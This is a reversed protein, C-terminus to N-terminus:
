ACGEADTEKAHAGGPHGSRPGEDRASEVVLSGSDVRGLLFAYVSALAAAEGEPTADERPSYSTRPKGAAGSAVRGDKPKGSDTGM